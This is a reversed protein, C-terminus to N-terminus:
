HGVRRASTGGLAVTGIAQEQVELVDVVGPQLLDHLKPLTCEDLEFPVWLPLPDTVPEREFPEADM